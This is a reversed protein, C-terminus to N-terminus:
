KLIRRNQELIFDVFDAAAWPQPRLSVWDVEEHVQKYGNIPSGSVGCLRLFPLDLISDGFGACDQPAVGHRGCLWLFGAGKDFKRFSFHLCLHTAEVMIVDGAIPQVVERAQELYERSDYPPLILACQNLCRGPEWLFPANLNRFLDEIATMVRRILARDEDTVSPHLDIRHTPLSFMMGGGEVISGAMCATTQALCEVYAQPRGTCFCVQPVGPEGTAARNNVNRIHRLVDLDFNSFSGDSLCGDIDTVILQIPNTLNTKM